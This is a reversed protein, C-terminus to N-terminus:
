YENKNVNPRSKAPTWRSSSPFRASSSSAATADLPYAEISLFDSVARRGGLVGGLAAGVHYEELGAYLLAM